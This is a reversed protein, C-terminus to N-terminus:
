NVSALQRAELLLGHLTDQSDATITLNAIYMSQTSYANNNSTAVPNQRALRYLLNAQQRGNLILEPKSSSGHVKVSNSLMGTDKLLGSDVVGGHAYQHIPTYHEGTGWNELLLNTYNITGEIQAIQERIKKM